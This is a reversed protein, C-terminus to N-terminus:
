WNINLKNYGMAFTIVDACCFAPLVIVARIVPRASIHCFDLAEPLKATIPTVGGM